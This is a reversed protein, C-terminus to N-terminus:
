EGVVNGSESLREQECIQFWGNLWLLKERQGSCAVLMKGSRGCRWACLVEGGLHCVESFAVDAHPDEVQGRRVDVCDM